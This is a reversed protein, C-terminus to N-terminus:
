FSTIKKFRMFNFPKRGYTIGRSILSSVKPTLFPLLLLAYQLFRLTFVLQNIKNTMTNKNIDHLIISHKWHIFVLDQILSKISINQDM